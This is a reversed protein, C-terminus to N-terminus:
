EEDQMQAALKVMANRIMRHLTPVSIDLCQSIEQLTYGGVRHMEIAIREKKPLSDLASVVQALKARHENLEAPNPSAAPHLWTVNDSEQHRCELNSRRVFDIALNRVIQYLYGVTQKVETIENQKSRLKLFADQVIEEAHARNGTIPTAYDILARRHTLFYKTHLDTKSLRQLGTILALFTRVVSSLM